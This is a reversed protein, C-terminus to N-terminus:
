TRNATAPKTLLWAIKNCVESALQDPTSVDSTVVMWGFRAAAQQFRMTSSAHADYDSIVKSDLSRARQHARDWSVEPACLVAVVLDPQHVGAALNSSVLAESDLYRRFVTDSPYWRDLLTIEAQPTALHSTSIALRGEQLADAIAQDVAADPSSRFHAYLSELQQKIAAPLLDKEVLNAVNYGQQLLEAHVRNILTTKGVAKPGDFTIILAM